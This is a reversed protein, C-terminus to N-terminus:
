LHESLRTTEEAEETLAETTTTLEKTDDEDASAEMTTELEKPRDDCRRLRQQRGWISAVETTTESGEYM